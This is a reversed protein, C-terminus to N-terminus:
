KARKFGIRKRGTYTPTLKDIRDLLIKFAMDLKDDVVKIEMRLESNELILARYRSFARMIEINIRVARNSRLVSSLMAVGQETFVMPNASSHKMTALREVSAILANKEATTLEFMFDEPFRDRNRRVAQKLKKTETKYLAALDTDIMVKFGRFEFILDGFNDVQILSNM